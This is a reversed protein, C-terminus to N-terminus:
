KKLPEIYLDYNGLHRDRRRQPIRQLRADSRAAEPARVNLATLLQGTGALLQYASFIHVARVSELQFQSNFLANEADLLDLLSRKSLEYEEFYTKVVKRNIDVQEEFSDVRAKGAQFAALARDIAEVVERIRVDRELQAATWREALERRRNVKILGDFINWSLVVKGVVEDNRGQIGDIDEGWSATGELSVTPYYSSRSQRYEYRAVDAEAGAARITPHNALAIDIATRRNLPMRRPYPVTHTGDPERGIVKRYKAIAELQSQEIEAIVAESGAVRELTQDVESRPAKGGEHRTRVLRLIERHRKVNNRAIAILRSHRHVDIYAEVAELGLGQSSELVRLAAADVRAANKYIDNARDWGQFLTQRVTVAITQRNRWRDNLGPGLSNPRIIKQSGVDGITDITPLLRGKAQKLQYDSAARNAQSAAVTPHTDIAQQVAERLSIAHASAFPPLSLIALVVAYRTLRRSVTLAVGFCM